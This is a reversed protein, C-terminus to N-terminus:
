NDVVLTNAETNPSRMGFFNGNHTLEVLPIFVRVKKFVFSVTIPVDVYRSRFGPLFVLVEDVVLPLVEIANIGIGALHGVRDTVADDVIGVAKIPLVVLKLERRVVFQHDILHM